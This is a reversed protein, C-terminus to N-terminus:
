VLPKEREAELARKMMRLILEESTAHEEVARRLRAIVQQMQSRKSLLEEQSLAELKTEAIAARSKEMEGRIEQHELILAKGLIEGLLPVLHQEEYAFHTRLGEYFYGVAEELQAQKEPLGKVPSQVWSAQARQISSLVEMDNLSGGVLKVHQRISSHEAIVRNVIELSDKM